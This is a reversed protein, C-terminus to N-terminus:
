SDLARRLEDVQAGLRALREDPDTCAGMTSVLASGVVVGDAHAGVARAATSDKIGFGVQIPLPSVKRILALREAVGDVNLHDAGTIGKLSVYYIFGSAEAAILRMREETTTPAILFILDVDRAALEAKLGAAEEPPLNVMILGDVGAAAAREAFTEAGMALVSNLYGMLVVPTHDDTERFARVLELCGALTTGNALGRESSAQIAPGEAEPDSFPVGLELVDAGSAVLQRLAPLTADPTPDGATIFTTLATRGQEKLAGLCAGLRSV